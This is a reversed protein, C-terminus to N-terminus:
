YIIKATRNFRINNLIDFFNKSSKIDISLYIFMAKGIVNDVPLFGWNRSDYSNNINDGVVFCYNKEVIYYGSEKGDIYVTLGKSDATHGEREIFTKWLSYNNYDIKITDKAKPIRIPGFKKKNFGLQYFFIDSDIYFDTKEEPKENMKFKKNRIFIENNEIQLTDGALAICRKVLIEDKVSKLQDKEGPFEFAIVDGINLDKLPPIKIRPIKINTFPIYEPTKPGYILKNIFVYDGQLLTDEMSASPIFLADLFFIKILLASFFVYIFIKSASIIKNPLSM